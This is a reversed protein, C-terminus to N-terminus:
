LLIRTDTTSRSDLACSVRGWANQMWARVHVGERGRPGILGILRKGPVRYIGRLNVANAPRTAAVM